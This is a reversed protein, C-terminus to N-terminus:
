FNPIFVYMYGNPCSFYVLSLHHTAPAVTHLLVHVKPQDVPTLKIDTKLQTLGGRGGVSEGRARGEMWVPQRKLEAERELSCVPWSHLSSDLAANLRLCTARFGTMVHHERACKWKPKGREGEASGRSGRLCRQREGGSELM